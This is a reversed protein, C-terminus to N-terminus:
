WAHHPRTAPIIAYVSSSFNAQKYFLCSFQDSEKVMYVGSTHTSWENEASSWEVHFHPALRFSFHACWEKDCGWGFMTVSHGIGTLWIVYFWFSFFHDFVPLGATCCLGLPLTMFLTPREWPYRGVSIGWLQGDRTVHSLSSTTDCWGHEHCKVRSQFGCARTMLCLRIAFHLLWWVPLNLIVVTRVKATLWFKAAWPSINLLQQGDQDCSCDRASTQSSSFSCSCVKRLSGPSFSQIRRHIHGGM